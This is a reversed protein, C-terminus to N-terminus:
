VPKIKINPKAHLYGTKRVGNTSFLIIKGM